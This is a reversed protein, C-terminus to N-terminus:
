ASGLSSARGQGRRSPTGEKQEEAASSSHTSAHSRAETRYIAQIAALDFPPGVPGHFPSPRGAQTWKLGVRPRTQGTNTRSELLTKGSRCTPGQRWNRRPNSSAGQGALDPLKRVLDESNEDERTQDRPKKSDHKSWQKVQVSSWPRTM